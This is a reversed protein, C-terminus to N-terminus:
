QFSQMDILKKYVGNQSILESHNGREVVEGKQMVLIEDVHQITSLRHAIVLSTRNEMLKNLADQVLRESETDLASTAEDLILIPPNKLVARAISLRQKQGGSLKNGSDGINTEYGKELQVIFEHANAIKAAHIVDEESACEVGFAINNFVTDNFLISQQTVIGLQDRLSFLTIDKVNNGDILIEGEDIDYFRPLLDALTSKGSGSQGVLAISKGKQLTFNVNKLVYENEYKFSVNRYELESSFEDLDEAFKQDKITVEAKTIDEIRSLAAVGRNAEYIAKSTSKFPSILQSFLVLYGIFLDPQLENTFVMNGGFLLVCATSVIGLFESSPSAIDVRRFIRVMLQYLSYNKEEFNAIAKKEANFGKIIRLGSLTEEMISLLKGSQQQGEKAKRKLGKGILGIILGSLPLFIIIFLSLKANIVFLTIIYGIIYFPEKFFGNVSAMFALEIERIDSTFRSLLDGKKENSFFSLQLHIVRRYIDNRLTMSVGHLAMSLFVSSLYSFLNKFFVVGILAICIVVLTYYKGNEVVLSAMMYNAYDLIGDKSFSITENHTKLIEAFQNSDTTFLINLLPIVMAFSFLAFFMGLLNFLLNLGILGKFPSALKLLTIINKM